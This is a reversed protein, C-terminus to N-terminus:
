FCSQEVALRVNLAEGEQTLYEMESLIATKVEAVM